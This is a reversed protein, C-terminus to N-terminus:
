IIYLSIQGRVPKASLIEYVKDFVAQTGCAIGRPMDFVHCKEEGSNFSAYETRMSELTKLEEDTLTFEHQEALERFSMNGFAIGM